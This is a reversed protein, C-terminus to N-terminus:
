YDFLHPSFYVSRSLGFIKGNAFADEDENQKTSKTEDPNGDSNSKRDGVRGFGFSSSGGFPNTGVPDTSKEVNFLDCKEDPSSPTFISNM